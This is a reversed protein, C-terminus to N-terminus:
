LPKTKASKEAPKEEGDEPPEDAFPDENEFSAPSSQQMEAVIMIFELLLGGLGENGIPLPATSTQRLGEEDLWYRCEFMWGEFLHASPIATAELSLSNEDILKQIEPVLSPWLWEFLEGTDIMGYSFPNRESAIVTGESISPIQFSQQDDGELRHCMQELVTPHLAVVLNGDINAWAPSVRSGAKSTQLYKISLKEGKFEIEHVRRAIAIGSSRLMVQLLPFQQFVLKEILQPNGGSIVIVAAPIIGRASSEEFILFHDGFAAILDDIPIGLLAGLAKQGQEIQWMQDEPLFAELTSQLQQYIGPADYSIGWLFIPSTPAFSLDKQTLTSGGGQLGSYPLSSGATFVVNEDGMYGSAYNIAGLRSIEDIFYDAEAPPDGGFEQFIDLVLGVIGPIDIHYSSTVTSNGICRQMGKQYIKDETLPTRDGRSMALYTKASVSGLGLVVREEHITWWIEVAPQTGLSVAAWQTGDLQEIRPDELPDLERMVLSGILDKYKKSDAGADIILYTIIEPEIPDIVIDAIGFAIGHNLSDLVRSMTEQSKSLFMQEFSALEENNENADAVRSDVLKMIVQPLEPILARIGDFRPLNWVRGAPSKDFAPELDDLGASSLYILSETPYFRALDDAETRSSILLLLIIALLKPCTM